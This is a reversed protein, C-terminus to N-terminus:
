ERPSEETPAFEQSRQLDQKGESLSSPDPFTSPYNISKAKAEKILGITNHLGPCIWLKWFNSEIEFCTDKGKIAVKLNIPAKKPMQIENHLM